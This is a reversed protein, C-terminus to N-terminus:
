NKGSVVFFRGGLGVAVSTLGLLYITVDQVLAAPPPSRFPMRGGRYLLPDEFPQCTSLSTVVRRFLEAGGAAATFGGPNSHSVDQRTLLARLFRRVTRNSLSSHGGNRLNAHQNSPVLDKLFFPVAEMAGLLFLQFFNHLISFPCSHKVRM